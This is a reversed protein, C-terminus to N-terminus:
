HRINKYSKQSISSPLIKLVSFHALQHVTIVRFVHFHTHLCYILEHMCVHMCVNTYINVQNFISAYNCKTVTNLVIKTLNTSLHTYSFFINKIRKVNENEDESYENCIEFHMNEKGLQKM